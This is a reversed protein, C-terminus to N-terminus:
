SLWNQSRQALGQQPLLQSNDEVCLGLALLDCFIKTKFVPRCLLPRYANQNSLNSPYVNPCGTTKFLEAVSNFHLFVLLSNHTM